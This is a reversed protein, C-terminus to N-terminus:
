IEFFFFKKKKLNTKAECLLFYNQKSLFLSFASHFWLMKNYKWVKVFLDSDCCAKKLIYSVLIFNAEKEKGFCIKFDEQPQNKVIYHSYIM